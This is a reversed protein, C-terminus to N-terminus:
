IQETDELFDKVTVEGNTTKEIIKALKRGPKSKDRIIASLHTPSYNILEAFAVISYRHKKLYMRLKM